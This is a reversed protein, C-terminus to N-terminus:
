VEDNIGTGTLNEEVNPEAADSVRAFPPRSKLCGRWGGGGAVSQYDRALCPRTPTFSIRASALPPGGGGSSMACGLYSM